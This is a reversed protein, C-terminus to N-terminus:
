DVKRLVCCIFRCIKRSSQFKVRFTRCLNSKACVDCCHISFNNGCGGDCLGRKVHESRALMATGSLGRFVTCKKCDVKGM